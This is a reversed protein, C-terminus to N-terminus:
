ISKHRIDIIEINKRMYQIWSNFITNSMTSILKNRISKYKIDDIDEESYTINNIKVIYLKNSSEIIKSLDGEDMVSLSGMIKYNKGFTKFSGNLSSEEGKNWVVIQNKKDEEIITEKYKKQSAPGWKGDSDLGNKEQFNKIKEVDNNFPNNIIKSPEPNLINQIESWDKNDM